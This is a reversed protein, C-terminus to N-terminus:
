DVQVVAALPPNAQPDRKRVFVFAPAKKRGERNNLGVSPFYVYQTKNCNGNYCFPEGVGTPLTPTHSDLAQKITGWQDDTPSWFGQCGSSADFFGDFVSAASDLEPQKGNALNSQTASANIAAAYTTQNQFYVSDNFRNRMTWGLLPMSPAPDVLGGAENNMMKLLVQPPVVVRSEKPSLNGDAAPRVSFAGSSSEAGAKVTTTVPSTGNVGPVTLSSQSTGGLNQILSSQFSISASTGAPTFDVRLTRATASDGTSVNLTPPSINTIEVQTCTVAIAMVGSQTVAVVDDGPLYGIPADAPILPKGAREKKSIETAVALYSGSKVYSKWPSRVRPSEDALVENMGATVNDLIETKIKGNSDAGSHHLAMARYTREKGALRITVEYSTYRVIDALLDGGSVLFQSVTLKDDHAASTRRSSWAMDYSSHMPGNGYQLHHGTVNLVEDPASTVLQALPRNTIEDISGTYIERLEFVVYDASKYSIGSAAAQEDRAATHYRMLRVYADRVVKQCQAPEKTSGQKEKETLQVRSSVHASKPHDANTDQNAQSRQPYAIGGLALMAWLVSATSTVTRREKM